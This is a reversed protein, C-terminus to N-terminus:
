DLRSSEVPHWKAVRNVPVGGATTFEGAVYINGSNASDPLISFVTNNTGDNPLPEWSNIYDPYQTRAIRLATQASGVRRFGGGVYLTGDYSEWAISRNLPTNVGNAIGAWTSGNWKAVYM